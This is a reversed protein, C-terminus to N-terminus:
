NRIDQMFWETPLDRGLNLERVKRYLVGADAVFQLGHNGINRYHTIQVENTRGSAKGAMLDTLVPPEQEGFGPKRSPLRKRQEASGAIYAGPSGAIGIQFDNSEPIPVGEVGHAIVVDFRAFAADSIERRAVNTVHMGPELWTADFVPEMSDTCTAVIDAGQIASRASAVPKVELKLREGMEHAFRERNDRSRSFIRVCKIDRVACFAELSTRAMGGSGIMGVVRANKRALYNAGIGAAAGVRMQQIVGDNLIALPEGNDTSFLFILGCYLGPRLAYKRGNSDGEVSRPWTVVDSKLRIALMGDFAGETSGWRYYGDDRECPVYMDIRPRLMSAGSLLGRFAREQADICEQMSLNQAALANDILLM